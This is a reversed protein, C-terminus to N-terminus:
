YVYSALPNKYCKLHPLTFFSIANTGQFATFQVMFAASICTINKLVRWTEKKSIKFKHQSEAEEDTLERPPKGEDDRFGANAYSVNRVEKEKTDNIDTGNQTPNDPSATM